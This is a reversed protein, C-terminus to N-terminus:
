VKKLMGKDMLLRANSNEVQYGTLLVASKSDDKLKNMYNLIPGGDMM